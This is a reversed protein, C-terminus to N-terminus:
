NYFKSPVDPVMDVSLQIPILQNDDEKTCLVARSDGLNGIIL